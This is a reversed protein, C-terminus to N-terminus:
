ANVISEKVVCTDTANFDISQNKQLITRLDDVDPEDLVSKPVNCDSEGFVVHMSEEVTLLRKNYVRYAHGNIACGIHMGEDSKLDFKGLNDKGNNLIFCKCGFVRLHSISPKRGRYLKYPAKKLIPRILTKNLVYSPTYIAYAWFYKPLNSENLMTRALEKLSRNKREVVGNQQPTRPAYYSHIIGHKECFRDFNANQFEGGHDSRIQKISNENENHLVKALKKFAKYADNKSTLFLIWTYRSFDDVIVLAYFNGVLNTTKSPGFLDMHLVDLTKNTSIMDKTKFSTRTQKGKVCADCLRNDQFKLNPLSSVLDKSKLKNLHNTHIHALRRHWLWSEDSKSLLCENESCNNMIDLLYINNVRRGTFLVKGSIENSITSTNAEFNVKYGKDCLQSISLLSHKLGEVYLVNEITTSNQTGVNGRGLIRGRNNDRYTDHGEAKFKLSTFQALDGTM